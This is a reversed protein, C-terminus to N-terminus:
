SISSTNTATDTRVADLDTLATVSILDTKDEIDAISDTHSATTLTNSAISNLQAQTILQFDTSTQLKDARVANDELAINTYATGEANLTLPAVKATIATVNTINSNVNRTIQNLTGTSVPNRSVPVDSVITGPPRPGRVIDDSDDAETITELSRDTGLKCMVFEYGNTSMKFELLHFWENVGNEFAIKVPRGFHLVPFATATIQNRENSLPKAREDFDTFVMEASRTVMPKDRKSLVESARLKHIFKGDATINDSVVWRGTSNAFTADNAEDQVRMGRNAATEDYFDGLVSECTVIKTTNHEVQAIFEVDGGEDGDGMVVDFNYIRAFTLLTGVSQTDTHEFFQNSDTGSIVNNESDLLKFDINIEVGTHDEGEPLAPLTWNFEFETNPTITGSGIGFVAGETAKFEASNSDRRQTHLGGEFDFDIVGGSDSLEVTAVEPTSGGRPFVLDYTEVNTTWEVDGSQEFFKATRVTSGISNKIPATETRTTIDRKLYYNGVKIKFEAKYKAGRAKDTNFQYGATAFRVGTRSLHLRGSMTLSQGGAITFGENNFDRSRLEYQDATREARFPTGAHDHRTGFMGGYNHFVDGQTIRRVGGEIHKSAVAKVPFLVNQRVKEGFSYGRAFIDLNTTDIPTTLPGHSDATLMANPTFWVHQRHYIDGSVSALHCEPNTFFWSGNALFIQAGFISAINELVESCSTFTRTRVAGGMADEGREIDTFALSQCLTHELVSAGGPVDVSSVTPIHHEKDQIWVSERFFPTAPIDTFANRNVDTEDLGAATASTAGNYQNFGWLTATPLKNLCRAIHVALTKEDTFEDDNAQRFPEDNLLVLGCQATISFKRKTILHEAEGQDAMITGFWFPRWFGTGDAFQSHGNADANEDPEFLFIAIGFRHDVNAHIADMLEGQAESVQVMELTCTSPVLPEHRHDANGEYELLFAPDVLDLWEVTSEAQSFTGAASQSDIIEIRFATGDGLM